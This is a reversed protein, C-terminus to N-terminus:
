YLIDHIRQKTANFDFCVVSDTGNIWGYYYADSFPVSHSEMSLSGGTVASTVLSVMTTFPINTKVMKLANDLIGLVESLEIGSKMKNIVASVVDRQRRTRGFDSDLKRNRCHKLARGGDLHYTGDTDGIGLYSAEAASLYLDIGGIYNIFNQTGNFDIVIFRQIDLDFCQNITNITSGIGYRIYTWNLKGWGYGEIPVLSDRLFSLLKITGESKNYSVVIMVDSLGRHVTVDRADTGVILINEVNPDKQNVKYIPTGGYVSVANSNGFSNNSNYTVGPSSSSSDNNAPPTYIDNPLTEPPTGEGDETAVSTVAETDSQAVSETTDPDGDSDIIIDPPDPPLYTDTRSVIEVSEYSTSNYKHIFSIVLAAAALIVLLLVIAISLLVIKLIKKKKMLFEM